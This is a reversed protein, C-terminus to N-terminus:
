DDDGEQASRWFVISWDDFGDSQVQFVFGRELLLEMLLVPAFTSHVRLVEQRRMADVTGMIKALPLPRGTGLTGRVDMDIVRAGSPYAVFAGEPTVAYAPTPHAAETRSPGSPARVQNCGRHHRERTVFGHEM